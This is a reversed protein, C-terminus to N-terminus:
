GTWGSIFAVFRAALSNVNPHGIDFVVLWPALNEETM